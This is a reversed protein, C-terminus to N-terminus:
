SPCKQNHVIILKNATYSKLKGYKAKIKQLEKKRQGVKRSLRPKKNKKEGWM